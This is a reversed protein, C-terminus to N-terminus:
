FLMRDLIISVGIIARCNGDPNSSLVIRSISNVAQTTATSGVVPGLRGESVGVGAGVRVEGGARGDAVIAGGEGVQVSIGGITVEGVGSIGAM